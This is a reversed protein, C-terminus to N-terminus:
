QKADHGKLGLVLSLRDLLEINKPKTATVQLLDLVQDQYDVAEMLQPALSEPQAMHLQASPELSELQETHLQASPELSELQEMHLLEPELQEMHPLELSEVQEMHLQIDKDLEVQHFGKLEPQPKTTAKLEQEMAQLKTHLQQDLEALM